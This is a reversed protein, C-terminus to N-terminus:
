VHARGIKRGPSRRAASGPRRNRASAPDTVARARRPERAPLQLANILARVEQRAAIHSMRPKGGSPNASRDFVDLMTLGQLFLERFIVRESFGPALRFGIRKALKGLVGAMERKNNAELNSLRNRM